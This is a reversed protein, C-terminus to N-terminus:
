LGPMDPGDHSIRQPGLSLREAEDEDDGHEEERDRERAREASSPRTERHEEAKQNSEAGPDIQTAVRLM